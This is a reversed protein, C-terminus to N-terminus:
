IAERNFVKLIKKRVPHSWFPWIVIAAFGAVSLVGSIMFGRVPYIRNFIVFNFVTGILCAAILTRSRSPLLYSLPRRNVRLYALTIIMSGAALSFVWGAVVGYGGFLYGLALSLALNMVGIVIHSITNWRLYGIGLFVFYAPANLTNILWGISLMISFVVFAPEVRGLWLSSVAPVLLIATMYFPIGIFMLIEYTDAFYGFIRKPEKEKIGAIVPVVVQNASVLLGRCQLIMRNAMEYYGTMALGGFNSLIMKTTPEYLMGIIMAVQVNAGYTLMERLRSLRWRIPFCPLFRLEARLFLWSVGLNFISQLLYSWAMGRLGLRPVLFFASVLLVFSSSILLVSRRDYRQCGELSSIFVGSISNVWLSAMVIPIIGSVIDHATDPLIFNLIMLIAPYMAFLLIGVSCAITLVGTQIVESVAQADDVSLYKSVFKVMGGSLGIEGIKNASFAAIVVSWIGLQEIGISRVLLRYLLFLAVASVVVQFISFLANRAVPPM